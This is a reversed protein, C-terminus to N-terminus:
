FGDRRHRAADECAQWGGGKEPGGGHPARHVGGPLRGRLSRGRRRNRRTPRVRRVRGPPSRAHPLKAPAARASSSRLLVQDWAQSSGAHGAAVAVLEPPPNPARRVHGLVERRGADAVLQVPRSRPRLDDAQDLQRAATVPVQLGGTHPSTGADRTESASEGGRGTGRRAATNPGQRCARCCSSSASKSTRRRRVRRRQQIRGPPRYVRLLGQRVREPV